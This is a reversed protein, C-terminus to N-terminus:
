ALFRINIHPYKKKLKIMQDKTINQCSTITLVKLLPMESVIRTLLRDELSSCEKLELYNIRSKKLFSFLEPVTKFACTDLSLRQLNSLQSLHNSSEENLYFYTLSLSNLKSFSSLHALWLFPKREDQNVVSQFATLSLSELFSLRDPPLISVPSPHAGAYIPSYIENINPCEKLIEHWKEITSFNQYSIRTISNKIHEMKLFSYYINSSTHLYQNNQELIMKPPLAIKDVNLGLTQNLFQSLLASKSYFLDNLEKNAAFLKTSSRPNLYSSLLPLLDCITLFSENFKFTQSNAASPKIKQALRNTKRMEKRSRSKEIVDTFHYNTNVSTM